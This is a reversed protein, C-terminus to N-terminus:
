ATNYFEQFITPTFGPIDDTGSIATNIYGTNTPNLVEKQSDLLGTGSATLKLKSATVFNAPTPPNTIVYEFFNGAIAMNAFTDPGTQAVTGFAMEAPPYFANSYVSGQQIEATTSAKIGTTTTASDTIKINDGGMEGFSTIAMPFPAGMIGMGSGTYYGYVGGNKITTKISSAGSNDSHDTALTTKEGGAENILYSTEAGYGHAANASMDSFLPSYVEIGGNIVDISSASNELGSSAKENVNIVAGTASSFIQGTGVVDSTATARGQYGHLTGRSTETGQIKIGSTATDGAANSATQSCKILGSSGSGSDLEYAVNAPSGDPIKGNVLGPTILKFSPATGTAEDWIANQVLARIEVSGSGDM